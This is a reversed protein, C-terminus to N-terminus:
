HEGRQDRSPNPMKDYKRPASAPRTRGIRKIDTLVWNKFTKEWDLKSAEKGAKAEWYLRFGELYISAETSKERCWTLTEAAPEWNEPIRAGRKPTAVKEGRECEGKLDSILSCLDTAGQFPSPLPKSPALPIGLDAHTLNYLDGYKALYEYLYAHHRFELLNKEVGKRRHDKHTLSEGVQYFSLNPVWAVEEEHDYAAFKASELDNLARIVDERAMGLERMITSIALSFIGTMRSDRCTMLYMALVQANQNGRLQRGTEGNWFSSRVTAYERSL